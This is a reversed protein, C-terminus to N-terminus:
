ILDRMLLEWEGPSESRLDRYHLMKLRLPIECDEHLVPVLRRQIAAPDLVQAMINEFNGWESLVYPPSLVAVTRRSGIVCRQMEEVGAAGAHFDRFDVAVRFGSKELSRLLPDRVWALDEHSYSVLVDYSLDASGM